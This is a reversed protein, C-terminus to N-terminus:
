RLEALQQEVFARLEPTLTGIDRARQFAAAAEKARGDSKLAVGLGLNWLANNPGMRLAAQYMDAADRHRGARSFVAGAMALYEPDWQANPLNSTLTAIAEDQAGRDLQMRALIMGFKSNDPNVALGERLLAEAEDRRGSELLLGLLAQRPPEAAPDAALAARFAREAETSNAEQLLRMGRRFEQDALARPALPRQQKEITTVAEATAGADAPAPEAPAAPTPPREVRAPKRSPADAGVVAPAPARAGPLTEAPALARARQASGPPVSPAAVPPAVGAATAVPAATAPAGGPAPAFAAPQPQPVAAAPAAAPAPPAPAPTPAAQPSPAPPAVVAHPRLLFWWVAAAVLLGLALVGGLAGLLARRPRDDPLARLSDSLGRAERGAHRKELDKLVQNILSM